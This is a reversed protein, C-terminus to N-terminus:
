CCDSTKYQHLSVLCAYGGPPPSDHVVASSHVRDVLFLRSRQEKTQRKIGVHDFESLVVAADTSFETAAAEQIEEEGDETINLPLLRHCFSALQNQFGVVSEYLKGTVAQCSPHALRRTHSASVKSIVFSMLKMQWFAVSADFAFDIKQTLGRSQM